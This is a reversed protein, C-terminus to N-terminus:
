EILRPHRPNAIEEAILYKKARADIRASRDTLEADTLPRSDQVSKAEGHARQRASATRMQAIV